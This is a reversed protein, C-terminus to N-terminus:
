QKDIVSSDSTAFRNSWGDGPAYVFDQFPTAMTPDKFFATSPTKSAVGTKAPSPCHVLSPRCPWATYESAMPWAGLASKAPAEPPRKRLVSAPVHVSIGPGPESTVATATSGDSGSVTYAPPEQPRALLVSLPSWKATSLESGIRQIAM